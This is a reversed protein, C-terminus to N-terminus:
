AIHATYYRRTAIAMLVALLSPTNQMATKIITAMAAASAIRLLYDGSLLTWHSGTFGQVHQMPRHWTSQKLVEAHGDFHGAVSACESTGVLIKSSV